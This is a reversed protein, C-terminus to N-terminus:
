SYTELGVGKVVCLDVWAQNFFNKGYLAHNFEYCLDSIIDYMDQTFDIKNKYDYRGIITGDDYLHLESKADTNLNIFFEGESSKDLSTSIGHGILEKMVDFMDIKPKIDTTLEDNEFTLLEVKNNLVEAQDKLLEIFRKDNERTNEM